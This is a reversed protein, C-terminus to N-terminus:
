NIKIKSVLNYWLLTHKKHKLHVKETTESPEESVVFPSARHLLPRFLKDEQM